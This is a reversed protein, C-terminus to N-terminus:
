ERTATLTIRSCGTSGCRRPNLVEISVELRANGSPTPAQEFTEPWVLEGGPALEFNRVCGTHHTLDISSASGISISRSPGLCAAIVKDGRNSLKLDVVVPSGAAARKVGVSELVLGRRYTELAPDPMLSCGTAAILALGFAVLAWSPLLTM